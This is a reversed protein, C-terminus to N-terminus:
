NEAKRNKGDVAAERLPENGMYWACEKVSAWLLGKLVSPFSQFSAAQSEEEEERGRLISRGCVTSTSNPFM